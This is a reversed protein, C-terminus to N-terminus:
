MIRSLSSTPSFVAVNWKFINEVKETAETAEYNDAYDLIEDITSPASDVYNKNYLLFCTEFYFPYAM